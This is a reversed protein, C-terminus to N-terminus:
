LGKKPLLLLNHKLTLVQGKLPQLKNLYEVKRKGGLAKELDKFRVEFTGLDKQEVAILTLTQTEMSLSKIEVETGAQVYGLFGKENQLSTKAAEALGSTPMLMFAMLLIGYQLKM